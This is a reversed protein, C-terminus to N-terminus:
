ELGCEEVAANFADATAEDFDAETDDNGVAELMTKLKARDVNGVLAEAVCKTEDVPAGFSALLARLEAVEGEGFAAVVEPSLTDGSSAESSDSDSGGCAVLSIALVAATATSRIRNM